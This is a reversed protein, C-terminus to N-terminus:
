SGLPKSPCRRSHLLSEGPRLQTLHQIGRDGHRGLGHPLGGGVPHDVLLLAGHAAVLHDVVPLLLAGAGHAAEHAAGAGPRLLGDAVLLALFLKEPEIRIAPTTLFSDFFFLYLFM